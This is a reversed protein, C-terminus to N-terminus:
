TSDAPLAIDPDALREHADRWTMSLDDGAAEILSDLYSRRERDRKAFRATLEEMEETYAQLDKLTTVNPEFDSLPFLSGQEGMVDALARAHDRKREDDTRHDAPPEGPEAEFPPFNAERLASWDEFEACAHRIQSETVYVRAAQLRYRIERPSLKLGAAKAAAILQDTVGNRLSKGSEAMADPDHVLRLGYLWRQRIGGVNAAAIAKEQRVYQATRM